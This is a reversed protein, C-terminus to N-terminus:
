EKVSDEIDRVGEPAAAETPEADLIIERDEQPTTYKEVRNPMKALREKTARRMVTWVHKSLIAGQLGWFVAVLMGAMGALFITSHWDEACTVLIISAILGCAAVSFKGIAARLWRRHANTEIAGRAQFNALERMAQLNSSLEPPLKRPIMVLPEHKVAPAEVVPEKVIAVPKVPEVPTERKPRNRIPAPEPEGGRMRNLLRAMYADISEEAEEEDGLGKVAARPSPTAAIPEPKSEIAKAEDGTDELVAAPVPADSKLISLGRLRAFVDNEDAVPATSQEDERVDPGTPEATVRVPRSAAAQVEADLRRREEALRDSERALEESKAALEAQEAQREAAWAQRDREFQQRLADLQESRESLEHLEQARAELSGQLADLEAARQTLRADEDAQRQLHEEQATRLSQLEAELAARRSALDTQVSDSLEIKAIAEDLSAQRATLEAAQAAVTKRQQELDALQATLEQRQAALSEGQSQIDGLQTRFATQEVEFARRLEDLSQRQSELQALQAAAADQKRQLENLQLGQEADWTARQADWSEREASLQESILAIDAQHQAHRGLLESQEAEVAHRRRDLDAGLANLDSQRTDLEQRWSELRSREEGLQWERESIAREREVLEEACSTEKEAQGITAPQQLAQLNNQLATVENELRSREGEWVTHQDQLALQRMALDSHAQDLRNQEAAIADHAERVAQEHATRQADLDAQRAAFETQRGHLDAQARDLDALRRDLEARETEWGQRQEADRRLSLEHSQELERREAELRAALTDLAASRANLEQQAGTQSEALQQRLAEIEAGAAQSEALRTNLQRIREIMRATRRRGQRSVVRLQERGSEVTAEPIAATRTPLADQLREGPSRPSAAVGALIELEIGAISLRDGPQLPADEFTFGNLRTDPSWRRVVTQQSGRLILCHFAKVGPARLRLTCNRDSGITCKASSLRIVQGSRSTGRIRLALDGTPSGLLPAAPAIIVM